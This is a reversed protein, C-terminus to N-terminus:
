EGDSTMAMVDLLKGKSDFRCRFNQIGQDGKDATGEIAFGGEKEAVVPGTAIYIPKVGYQGAAEGRCTATMQGRDVADSASAAGGPGAAAAIAVGAFASLARTRKSRIM